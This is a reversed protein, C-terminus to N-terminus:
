IKAYKKDLRWQQQSIVVKLTIPLIWLTWIGFKDIKKYFHNFIQGTGLSHRSARAGELWQLIRIPRHHRQSFSTIMARTAVISALFIIFIASEILTRAIWTVQSAALNNPLHFNFFVAKSNVPLILSRTGYECCEM